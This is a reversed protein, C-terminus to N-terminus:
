RGTLGLVVPVTRIMIELDLRLSWRAIYELDWIAKDDFDRYSRARIQALGTIGPKAALRARHWPAYADVEVLPAPRPGVLSMEGRLVNWLQPLEDLSTRRLLGGFELSVRIM